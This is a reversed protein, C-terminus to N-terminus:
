KTKIITEEFKDISKDWNLIKRVNEYGAISIRKLEDGNNILYEVGKLLEEPNDPSTLIASKMNESYEPLAAVGNGVVACKCAMAEAPPLGFGENKSTFLFIDSECYLRVIQEEDPNEIFEIYEPMQHYKKFGFCKFKLDEYKSKLKIVTDIADKTNKNELSHDMFLIRKPENYEKDPNNFKVFDIGNLIVVSDSNFKNLLFNKLYVSVSIKNLPLTYSRNVYKVNSNWKEYDQILYFKKGKSKNLKDVIYSTTWSTAITVEANRVSYNNFLWLFKIEFNRKFINEPLKKSNKLFDKAYNIRYKLYYKKLMGKYNNFPVIPSYLIVNHGRETLRNAYEFIIRMGGTRSIEPVLFNIKM